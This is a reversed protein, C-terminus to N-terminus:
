FQRARRFCNRKSEGFLVLAFRPFVNLTCLAVSASSLYRVSPRDARHLLLVLSLLCVHTSHLEVSVSALFLLPLAHFSASLAYVLLLSCCYYYYYYYYYYYLFHNLVSRVLIYFACGQNVHTCYVHMFLAYQM